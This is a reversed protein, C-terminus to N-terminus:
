MKDSAVFVTLQKAQLTLSVKNMKSFDTLAWTLTVNTKRDVTRELFFPVGHFVALEAGLDAACTNKKLVVM